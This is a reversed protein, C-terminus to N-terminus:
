SSSTPTAAYSSTPAASSGAVVSSSCATACISTEATARAANIDYIAIEDALRDIMAAYAVASGVSGAGVVVVKQLSSVPSGYTSGDGRSRRGESATSTSRIIPDHAGVTV